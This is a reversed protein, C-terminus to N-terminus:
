RALLDALPLDDLSAAITDVDPGLPRDEDLRPVRARVCEYAQRAGRGLTDVATPRLDVAQAATLLEIAALNRLLPVAAGTKAVVHAAM